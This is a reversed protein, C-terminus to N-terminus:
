DCLYGNMVDFYLHDPLDDYLYSFNFFAPKSGFYINKIYKKLLAVESSNQKMFGWITVRTFKTDLDTQRFVLMIYKLYDEKTHYAFQNYYLLENSEVVAIHLINKDVFLYMGRETYKDQNRIIGEIFASGQHIIHVKKKEYINEIWECLKKEAAFVNVIGTSTHKYHVVEEFSPNIESNLVLYDAQKERVFYSSPVMTFKHTKVCLKVSKWFGATLYEHNDLIEKILHLRSNTTKVGILRYDELGIIQNNQTNVVSFQLDYIGVVMVLSYIDLEYISFKDEKIRHILKYSTNQTSM